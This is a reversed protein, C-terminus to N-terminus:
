LRKANPIHGYKAYLVSWATGHGQYRSDVRIKCTKCVERKDVFWAKEMPTELVDKREKLTGAMGWGSGEDKENSKVPIRQLSSM